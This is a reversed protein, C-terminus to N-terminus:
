RCGGDLASYPTMVMPIAKGEPKNQSAVWWAFAACVIIWLVAFCGHNQNM